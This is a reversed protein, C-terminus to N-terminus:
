IVALLGATWVSTEQPIRLGQLYIGSCYRLNPWLWNRGGAKRQVAQTVRLADHELERLAMNHRCVTNGRSQSLYSM